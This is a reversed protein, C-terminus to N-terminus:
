IAEGFAPHYGIKEALISHITQFDPAIGLRSALHQYIVIKDAIPKTIEREFNYPVPLRTSSIKGETEYVKIVAGFNEQDACPENPFRENVKIWTRLFNVTGPYNRLYIMSAIPQGHVNEVFALDTKIGHLLEPYSIIEADADLFVLPRNPFKNLMDMIFVPKYHCCKSWTGASERCEIHNPLGFKNLSIRLREAMGSYYDDPTNWCVFIPDM